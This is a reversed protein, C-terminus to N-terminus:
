AKVIKAGEPPNMDRLVQELHKKMRYNPPGGNKEIEPQYFERLKDVTDLSVVDPTLLHGTPITTDMWIEPEPQLEARARLCFYIDETHGPGTVFYPPSMAKIVDMKILVCSFGVAGTKVLGADEGETILDDKWEDHTRLNKRIKGNALNITEFDKFCMVKFPWGRIFTLAMIIDKNRERLVKYTRPQLLVDDDLFMLYDCNQELAVRAADNRMSDISMRYPTYLLFDDKPYDKRTQSWFQIHSSYAFSHVSELTNTGVLTKAM